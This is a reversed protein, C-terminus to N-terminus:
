VLFGKLIELVQARISVDAIKRAGALINGIIRTSKKPIGSRDVIM